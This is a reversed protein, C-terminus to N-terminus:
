EQLLSILGLAKREIEQWELQPQSGAVIGAGAFVRIRNQEVFASRITVCFEAYEATMVGLTGAYWSREFTETQQLFGKAAQRPLGAVAATPHIAQLCVADGEGAKLDVRIKRKLHQVQRLQAVELDSVEIKEIYPQLNQSIDEVVLWNEYINKQDQLLWTAQRQNQQSDESMFATGALAETFLVQEQRAYLREPTSGIFVSDAQEALLFHYCGFNYYESEALLDIANLATKTQFCSENALVVKSAEQSQIFTLAKEVWQCWEDQTAKKGELHIEQKISSLEAESDFDALLSLLAQKEGQWDQQHNIFLRCCLNGEQYELLLRPLFLRGQGNFTLGGVLPLGSQHVFHQAQNVDSFSRVEGLSIWKKPCDRGRLYFQPYSTQAKLWNLGNFSFNGQASLVGVGCQEPQYAHIQEILRTKLLKLSDM